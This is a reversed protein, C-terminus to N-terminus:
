QEAPTDRPLSRYHKRMACKIVHAPLFRVGRAKMESIVITSRIIEHQLRASAASSVEEVMGHEALFDEFDSGIHSHM